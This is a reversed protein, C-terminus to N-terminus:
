ALRLRTPAIGGLFRIAGVALRDLAIRLAIIMVYVEDFADARAFLRIRRDFDAVARGDGRVHGIQGIASFFFHRRFRHPLRSASSDPLISSRPDLIADDKTFRDEIRSGRDEVIEERKTEENNSFDGAAM